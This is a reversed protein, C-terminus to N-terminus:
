EPNCFALFQTTLLEIAAARDFRGASTATLQCTIAIQNLVLRAGTARAKAGRASQQFAPLLRALERAVEGFATHIEDMYQPHIAAIETMVQVLPAHAHYFEMVEGILARVARESSDGSAVFTAYPALSQPGLTHILSLALDFKNDFYRYFTPRSVDARVLVDDVTAGTYSREVFVESAARM